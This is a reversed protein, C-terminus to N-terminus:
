KIWINKYYDNRTYVVLVQGIVWLILSIILLVYTILFNMSNLLVFILISIILILFLSLGSIRFVNGLYYIKKQKNDIIPLM